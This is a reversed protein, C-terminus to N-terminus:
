TTGPVSSLNDAKTALEKVRSDDQWGMMKLVANKSKSKNKFKIYNSIEMSRGKYKPLAASLGRRVEPVRLRRTM